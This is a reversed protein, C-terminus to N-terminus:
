GSTYIKTKGANPNIIYKERLPYHKSLDLTIRATFIVTM